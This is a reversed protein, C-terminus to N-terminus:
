KPQGVPTPPENAGSAYRTYSAILSDVEGQTIQHQLVCQHLQNQIKTWDAIPFRPGPIGIAVMQQISKVLAECDLPANSVPSQRLYLWVAGKFTDDQIGGVAAINADGSLAISSGQLAPGIANTGVLKDGLQMWVGGSRTYVLAAGTDHSNNPEGVIATNGDASLAVSGGAGGDGPLKNGQQNWTDGNRVFVWAAGKYSNDAPGGIIATNGDASLAIAVGQMAKGVAGTGILKDGQQTWVGRRDRTFVWVAGAQSNDLDGGVMVTKGDGSIAVFGFLAKGIAGHGVLKAGNQTWVNGNRTFVWAAGRQGHDQPGGVVATNGDGSLAVTTGQAAIGRAGTGILKSGQQTWVGSSRNYVWVAGTRTNDGSGGVIATNGDSSLAVATGQVGDGVPNTGVLKGGQQNWFGASQTFIWAAGTPDDGRGGEILTNGDASLAVDSGQNAATGSAGTGILKGQQAYQAFALETSYILSSCALFLIALIASKTRRVRANM